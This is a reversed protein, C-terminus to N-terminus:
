KNKDPNDSPHIDGNTREFYYDADEIATVMIRDITQPFKPHLNDNKILSCMTHEGKLKRDLKNLLTLLNKRSLFVQEM